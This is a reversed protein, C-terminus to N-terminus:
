EESVATYGLGQVYVRCIECHCNDPRWSKICQKFKDLSPCNKLEEPLMTNWVIPGFSRLSRDGWKVTNVNPRSFSTGSRTERTIESFIDRMFPPSLDNKVKYM